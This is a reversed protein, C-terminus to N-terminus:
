SSGMCMWIRRCTNRIAREPFSRVVRKFRGDFCSRRFARTTSRRSNDSYKTGCPRIRTPLTGAWRSTRRSPLTTNTATNSRKPSTNRFSPTTNSKITRSPLEWTKSNECIILASTPSALTGLSARKGSPPYPSGRRKVAHPPMKARGDAPRPYRSHHPTCSYWILTIWDSSTKRSSTKYPRWPRKTVTTVPLLKPLSSSKRGTSEEAFLRRSPMGSRM